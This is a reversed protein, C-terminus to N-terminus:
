ALAVAAEAEIGLIVEALGEGAGGRGGIL